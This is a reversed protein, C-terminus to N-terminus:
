LGNDRLRDVVDDRSNLSTTEHEAMEKYFKAADDANKAANEARDSQSDKKGTIKGFFYLIPGLAILLAIVYSKIKSWIRSLM